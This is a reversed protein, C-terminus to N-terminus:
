YDSDMEEMITQSLLGKNRRRRTGDSMSLHSPSLYGATMLPAEAKAKRKRKDTRYQKATRNQPPPLEDLGLPKRLFDYIFSVVFGLGVGILAAIGLYIYLTQCATLPEGESERRM